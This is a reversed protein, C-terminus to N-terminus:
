SKNVAAVTTAREVFGDCARLSQDQRSERRDGHDPRREMKQYIITPRVGLSFVRRRQQFMDLKRPMTRSESEPM